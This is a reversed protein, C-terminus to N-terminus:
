VFDFDTASLDSLTLGHFNIKTGNHDFQAFTSGDVTVDTVHDFALASDGNLDAFGANELHIKDVGSQFDSGTLPINGINYFDINNLDIRAITDEGDNGGFVFVDSGWGGQLLDNDAGGNLMDNGYHYNSGIDGVLIDNGGLGNWGEWDENERTNDSGTFVDSGQSGFFHAMYTFTDNVLGGTASTVTGSGDQDVRLIVGGADADIDDYSLSGAGGLDWATQSGIVTDQGLGPKVWAWNEDDTIGSLDILDDGAGGYASIDSDVGIITDNGDEGYARNDGSGPELRDNGSGGRLTDDGDLGILTDNGALGQLEDNGDTGQIEKNEIPAPSGILLDQISYNQEEGTERDKILRVFEINKLTAVTSGDDISTVRKSGDDLQELNIESLLEDLTYGGLAPYAGDLELVDNDTSSDDIFNLTGVEIERYKLVDNFNSGIANVDNTVDIEVREFDSFEATYSQDESNTYSIEGAGFDVNIEYGQQGTDYEGIKMTDYDAGGQFLVTTPHSIMTKTLTLGVDDNGSGADVIIQQVDDNQDSLNISGIDDDGSTGTIILTGNTANQEAVLQGVSYKQGDFRYGNTDVAGALLLYEVGTFTGIAESPPEGKATITIQGNDEYLDVANLFEQKTYHPAVDVTDDDGAGLGINFTYPLNDLSVYDNGDTGTVDLHGAVSLGLWYIDPITADVTVDSAADNVTYAGTALNVNTTINSYDLSPDVSSWDQGPGAFGFKLINEISDMPNFTFSGFYSQLSATGNQDAIEIGVDLRNAESAGLFEIDANKALAHDVPMITISAYDLVPNNFDTFPGWLSLYEDQGVTLTLEDLSTIGLGAFMSLDLNGGHVVVNDMIVSIGADIMSGMEDTPFNAGKLDLTVGGATVSFSTDTISANFVDTGDDTVVVNSLNDINLHDSAIVEVSEGSLSSSLATIDDMVSVTAAMEALGNPSVGSLVAAQGGATITIGTPTKNIALLTVDDAIFELTSLNGSAVGGDVALGLEEGADLEGLGPVGVGTIKMKSTGSVVEVHSDSEISLVPNEGFNEGFAVIFDDLNEFEFGVLDSRDFWDPAGWVIDDYGQFFQVKANIAGM